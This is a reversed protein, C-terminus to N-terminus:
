DAIDAIQYFTDAPLHVVSMAHPRRSKGCQGAAPETCGNEALRTAILKRLGHSSCEPLGAEDCRERIWNGFGKATSPRGNSNLIFVMRDRTKTLAEALPSLIPIIVPVGTKKQARFVISNGVVHNRGLRVADSKRLGTNSMITFAFHAM